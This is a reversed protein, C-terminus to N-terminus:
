EESVQQLCAEGETVLPIAGTPTTTSLGIVKACGDGNLVFSFDFTAQDGTQIGLLACGETLVVESPITVSATASGTGDALVSYTGTGTNPVVCLGAINQTTSLETVNGQGDTCFRGVLSTGHLVLKQFDPAPSGTTPDINIDPGLINGYQSTVYCGTLSANDFNQAIALQSLLFTGLVSCIGLPTKFKMIVRGQLLPGGDRAIRGTESVPAHGM